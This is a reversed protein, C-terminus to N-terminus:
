RLVGQHGHPLANTGEGLATILSLVQWTSESAM